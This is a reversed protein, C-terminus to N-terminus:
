AAATRERARDAMAADLAVFLGVLTDAGSSAGYAMARGIARDIDDDDGRAIAALVDHLREAFAGRAAHRLVSAGIATTRTPAAYAVATALAPHARHGTSELGALLGVLYDDGSPTLGPGLGMLEVAEGIISALDGADFAWRQREIRDRAVGILPDAPETGGALLPGLGASPARSAAVRRAVDISRVLDATARGAATLSASAPLAASWVQASGTDIVVAAEPISQGDATAVVRMGRRFGSARLDGIGGVLVAGPLGGVDAIAITLLDGSGALDVYM